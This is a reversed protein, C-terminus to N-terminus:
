KEKPKRAELVAVYPLNRYEEDYDLGYGVVFDRGIKFGVYALPIEVQRCPEKDLLTCVEISRPEKSSLYNLVYRLTLGTDVVGEVVVVDRGRINSRIEHIIKVDGSSTMASGYSSVSMFDIELPIHMARVLDILFVAGGKLVAVFVPFKGDYDKALKRGMRGICSQVQKETLLIREKFLEQKPVYTL